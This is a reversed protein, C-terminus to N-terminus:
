QALSPPLGDLPRVQRLRRRGHERAGRPGHADHHAHLAARLELRDARHRVELAAVRAPGHLVAARVDHSRRVGGAARFGVPQFVCDDGSRGVRPNNLSRGQRRNLLTSGGGKKKPVRGKEYKLILM